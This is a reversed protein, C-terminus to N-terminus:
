AASNLSKEKLPVRKVREPKQTQPLSPSLSRKLTVTHPQVQSSSSSGSTLPISTNQSANASEQQPRVRFTHFSSTHPLAPSFSSSGSTSAVPTTQSANASEQQKVKLMGMYQTEPKEPKPPRPTPVPQRATVFADFDSIVCYLSHAYNCSWDNTEGLFTSLSSASSVEPADPRLRALMTISTASLVFDVPFLCAGLDVSRVSSRWDKLVEELEKRDKMPRFAATASVTRTRSNLAMYEPESDSDSSLDLAPLSVNSSANPLWLDLYNLSGHMEADCCLPGIFDLAIVIYTLLNNSITISSVPTQPTKTSNLLIDACVTPRSYLTLSKTILLVLRRWKLAMLTRLDKKEKKKKLTYGLSPWSSSLAILKAM